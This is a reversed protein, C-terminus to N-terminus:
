RPRPSPRIILFARCSFDSMMMDNPMLLIAAGTNNFLAFRFLDVDNQSALASFVNQSQGSPHEHLIATAVGSNNITLRPATAPATDVSDFDCNGSGMLSGLVLLAMADGSNWGPRNVIEQVITTVDISKWGTGWNPQNVSVSSRTPVRGSVRPDDVYNPANSMAHGKVTSLLDDRATSPIYGELTASTIFAGRVATVGPFRLGTHRGGSPSTSVRAACPAGSCGTAGNWITANREYVDDNTDTIQIVQQAHALSPGAALIFCAAGLLAALRRAGLRMHPM